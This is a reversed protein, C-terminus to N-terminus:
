REGQTRVLEELQAAARQGIAAIDFYQHVVSFGQQAMSHRLAPDSKLTRIGAALSQPNGRECLYLHVGHQLVEPLAPTAGSIVPKQMAFGEYIKNNNTLELQKTTGFAGLVLDARAIHPILDQHELWGIFRINKVDLEQAIQHAKKEEPGSGIMEFEIDPDDELLKAARVITEVGHNPIYTGYYIVRFLDGDTAPKGLPTFARDDVGIQILRFRETSIQYTKGFWDVFIQTDLFLMDPLQCALREVRQILKGTFPHREIIGRESTMLYLSNLVDWALPKGKLKAAVWAFFVDFYGPYGVVLVDYDGCRRYRQFVRWYAKAMRTWFRPHLWGGMATNVRDEAGKWLPEHCTAVEVGQARLGAMIIQNRAYRERYTGFYCVRLPKESM